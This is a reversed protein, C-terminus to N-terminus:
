ILCPNKYSRGSPNANPLPKGPLKENRQATNYVFAAVVAASHKLDGKSLQAYSDM